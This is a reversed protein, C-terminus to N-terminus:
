QVGNNQNTQNNIYTFSEMAKLAFKECMLITEVPLSGDIKPFIEALADRFSTFIGLENETMQSVISANENSIPYNPM